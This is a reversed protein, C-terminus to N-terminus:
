GEGEVAERVPVVLLAEHRPALVVEHRREVGGVCEADEEGRVEVRVQVQGHLAKDQLVPRLDTARPLKLPATILDALSLHTLPSHHHCHAHPSAYTSVLTNTIKNGARLQCHPISAPRARRENILASVDGPPGGGGDVRLLLLMAEVCADDVAVM